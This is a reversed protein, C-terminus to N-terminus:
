WRPSGTWWRRRRSTARLWITLWKRPKVWCAGIVKESTQLHHHYHHGSYKGVSRIGLPTHWSINSWSSISCDLPVFLQSLLPTRTLSHFSSPLFTSSHSPSPQLARVTQLPYNMNTRIICGKPAIKQINLPMQDNLIQWKYFVACWNGNNERRRQGQPSKLQAINQQWVQSYRLLIEGQYKNGNNERRRQGQPSKLQAINQQWVQSYRLLIEGQYKNFMNVFVCVVFKNKQVSSLIPSGRCNDLRWIIGHQLTQHLAWCCLCNPGKFPPWKWGPPPSWVQWYLVHHHLYNGM